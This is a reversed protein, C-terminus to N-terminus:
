FRYRIGMDLGISFPADQAQSGDTVIPTFMYRFNPLMFFHTKPNLVYAGGIQIILGHKIGDINEASETFAPIEIGASNEKVDFTNEYSQILSLEWGIGYELQWDSGLSNRFALIIPIDYSTISTSVDVLATDSPGFVFQDVQKFGNVRYNLGFRLDLTKSVSVILRGGVSYSFVSKSRGPTYYVDEGLDVNVAQVLNRSSVGPNISAEVGFLSRKVNSDEFYYIKDDQGYSFLICGFLFVLTFFRTM